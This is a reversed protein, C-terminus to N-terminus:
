KSFSSMRTCASNSNFVTASTLGRPIAFSFFVVLFLLYIADEKIVTCIFEFGCVLRRLVEGDGFLLIKLRMVTRKSQRFDFCVGDM